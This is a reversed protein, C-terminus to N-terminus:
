APPGHIHDHIFNKMWEKVPHGLIRANNYGWIPYLITIINYKEEEGYIKELAAVLKVKGNYCLPLLWGIDNKTQYYHPEALENISKVVKSM